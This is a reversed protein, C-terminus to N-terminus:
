IEVPGSRSPESSSRVEESPWKEAGDDTVVQKKVVESWTEGNDGVVVVEGVVGDEVVQTVPEESVGSVSRWEKTKIHM